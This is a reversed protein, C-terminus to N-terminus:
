NRKGAAFVPVCACLTRSSTWKGSVVHTLAWIWSSPLGPNSEQFLCSIKRKGLVDIGCCPGVWCGKWRTDQTWPDPFLILWECGNLGSTLFLHPRLKVVGMCRWLKSLYNRNEGTTQFRCDPTCRSRLGIRPKNWQREETINAECSIITKLINLNEYNSFLKVM